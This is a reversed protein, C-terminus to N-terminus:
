VLARQDYLARLCERLNGLHRKFLVGAEALPLREGTLEQALEILLAPSTRTELLTPLRSTRHVTILCGAAASAASHLTLWERTSLQEAGDLLLLDPARLSRVRTLMQQKQAMTSEAQVRFFHPNFGLERARPALQELLTTKGSGHPGVIAGRWKAAACRDLFTEWTLDSPLRFPLAEIRHMAFPNDRPRM